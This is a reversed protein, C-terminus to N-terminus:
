RVGVQSDGIGGGELHWWGLTSCGTNAAAEPSADDGLLSRHERRSSGRPRLLLQPPLQLVSGMGSSGGAAPSRQWSVTGGAWCLLAGTCSRGPAKGARGVPFQSAPLAGLQGGAAGSDRQEQSLCGEWWRWGRWPPAPPLSNNKWLGAPRAPSGARSIGVAPFPLPFSEEMPVARGMQLAERGARLCSRWSPPVSTFPLQGM